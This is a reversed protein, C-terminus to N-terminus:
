APCGSTCAIVRNRGNEKAEYLARDANNILTAGDTGDEPFTAVGASITVMGLPQSERGAFPHREVEHRLREAYIVAGEKPTEPALAVFEEGGYRALVTVARSNSKFLRALDKLLDDGALHGHTDNYKKFNDLDMFVVSFPHKYRQARSVELDLAERFSRNNLLGTLGDHKALDELNRNMRELEEMNQKLRSMLTSNRRLLNLKDLARNVVTSVLSLQAFPKVLFDYAGARLASTAMELSAQSTMIVVLSDQDLVRVENLLDIGSMKDMLVDTIILPFPERRYAELAAEGSTVETVEHGEEQLVKKIILRVTAEDDVVLIREGM